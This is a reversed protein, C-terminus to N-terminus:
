TATSQKPPAILARRAEETVINALVRLVESGKASSQWHLGIRVRTDPALDVLKGTRLMSRAADIPVVGWGTGNACCAVYGEYSPVLHGHLPHAEGFKEMLWQTLLQDKRDFAISPAAQLATLTVGDAFYRACFEPTAVGLYEMAGLSLRRFGQIPTDNATLAAMAEGSKLRDASHEQDDTMIDLNVNLESAARRIVNPFWTSLSDSNVAIRLLAAESGMGSAKGAISRKLEHELLLVHDIHRCLQLGFETPVCPRGRVVLIAGLREELQKIRQSVASQTVNLERAAAEFTGERVVAALADLSDYDFEIM